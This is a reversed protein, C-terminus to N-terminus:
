NIRDVAALSLSAIDAPLPIYGLEASLIQGRTLGWRVFRKLAEAKDRDSYRDYLLLWSYTVIPYSEPGEPDPLFLRLNAPMRGAAHALAAQGAQEGPEVYRGSRNELQAM